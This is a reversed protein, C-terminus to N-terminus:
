LPIEDEVRSDEEKVGCRNGHMTMLSVKNILSERERTMKQIYIQLRHVEHQLATVSSRDRNIHVLM